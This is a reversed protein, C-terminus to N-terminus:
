RIAGRAVATQRAGTAETPGRFSAGQDDSVLLPYIANPNAPAGYLFLRSGVGFLRMPVTGAAEQRTADGADFAVTPPTWSRGDDRSSAVRVIGNHEVALVTAGAVRAVDFREAVLKSFPAEKPLSLPGCSRAHTCLVIEVHSSGEPEVAAVLGSDDCALAIVRHEGAIARLTSPERGPLLSTVLLSGDERSSVGFGRQFDAGGCEGAREPGIEIPLDGKQFTVGGDQSVFTVDWALQVWLGEGNAFTRKPLARENPLGRGVGAVALAVPHVAEKTGLTARVLRRYDGRVIPWAREARESLPTLEFTLESLSRPKTKAPVGLGYEVFERARARHASFASESSSLKRSLEACQSFPADNAPAAVLRRRVLRRFEARNDRILEPGTPGVMCAAYDAAAGALDHLEWAARVRPVALGM